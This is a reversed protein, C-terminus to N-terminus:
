RKLKVKIEQNQPKSKKMDKAEELMKDAEAFIGQIDVGKRIGIGLVRSVKDTSRSADNVAKYIVMPDSSIESSWKKLYSLNDHDIRSRIGLLSCLMASSLQSSLRMSSENISHEARDPHFTSQSLMYLMSSYYASNDMFAEKPPSVIHDKDISYYPQVFNENVRVPCLWSDSSVLRDVLDESVINERQGHIRTMLEEYQQPMKEKFNTQSLNFVHWPPRLFCKVEYKKKEEPSLNRYDEESLDSKKGTEKEYLTYRYIAIPVSHEGPNVSLGVTKLQHFTMWIPFEYGKSSAVMSTIFGNRGSYVHGSMNQQPYPSPTLFPDQPSDPIRDFMEVFIDAYKHALVESASTSKKMICIFLNRSGQRM